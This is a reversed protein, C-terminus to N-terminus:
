DGFEIMQLGSAAVLQQLLEWRARYNKEIYETYRQGTIKNDMLYQHQADLEAEWAAERREQEEESYHEIFHNMCGCRLCLIEHSLGFQEPEFKWHELWEWGVRILSVKAHCVSCGDKLSEYPAEQQKDTCILAHFDAFDLM